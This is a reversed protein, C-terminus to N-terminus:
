HFQQGRETLQYLQKAQDAFGPVFRRYYTCLGLFRWVENANRPIPWNKVAEIKDPDTTVGEESVVHGLFKVKHRFLECKKPNLKLHATRFRGLISRLRGLGEDFTRTHTIVDDVIM